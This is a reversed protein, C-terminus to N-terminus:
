RKLPQQNGGVAPYQGQIATLLAKRIDLFPGQLLESPCPSRVILSQGNAAPNPNVGWYLGVWKSPEQFTVHKKLLVKAPSSAFSAWINFAVERDESKAPLALLMELVVGFVSLGYTTGSFVRKDQELSGSVVVDYARFTETTAGWHSFYTVEYFIESARLESALCSGIKTAIYNTSVTTFPVGPVMLLGAGDGIDAPSEDLFEVVALRLPTPKAYKYSPNPIYPEPNTSACGLVLILAPIMVISVHNM